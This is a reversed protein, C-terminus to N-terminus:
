FQILRFVPSQVVVRVLSGPEEFHMCRLWVAKHLVPLVISVFRGNRSKDQLFHGHLALFSTNTALLETIKQVTTM